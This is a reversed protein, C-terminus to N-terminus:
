QHLNSIHKLSVNNLSIVLNVSTIKLYVNVQEDNRHYDCNENEEKEVPEKKIEAETLM